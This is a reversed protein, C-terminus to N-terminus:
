RVAKKRGPRQQKPDMERGAHTHVWHYIEERGRLVFVRVGLKEAEEHWHLQIASPKKKDAKLEVLHIRGGPLIVMRDPMGSVTPAMKFVKGGLSTRVCQRLYAELQSELMQTGTVTM